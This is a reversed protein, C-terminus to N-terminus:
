ASRGELGFAITMRGDWPHTPAHSWRNAPRSPGVHTDIPKIM